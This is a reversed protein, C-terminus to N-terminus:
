CRVVERVFVIIRSFRGPISHVFTDGGGGLNLLLADVLVVLATTLLFNSRNWASLLEAADGTQTIRRRLLLLERVSEGM